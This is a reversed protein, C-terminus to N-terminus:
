SGGLVPPATRIRRGFRTREVPDAGRTHERLSHEAARIREPEGPDPQAAHTVFEQDLAEVAYIHRWKEVDADPANVGISYSSRAGFRLATAWFWAHRSWLVRSVDIWPRFWPRNVQRVRCTWFRWGRRM